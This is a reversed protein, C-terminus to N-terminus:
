LERYIYITDTVGNNITIRIDPVLPKNTEILIDDKSIWRSTEVILWIGLGIMIGFAILGKFMQGFDASIM